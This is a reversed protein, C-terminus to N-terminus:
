RHDLVAIGDGLEMSDLFKECQINKGKGEGFKSNLFCFSKGLLRFRICFCKEKFSLLNTQYIVKNSRIDNVFEYINKRIWVSTYLEYVQKSFLNIYKREDFANTLISTWVLGRDTEETKPNVEIDQISFHFLFNM